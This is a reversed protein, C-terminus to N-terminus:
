ILSSLLQDFDHKGNGRIPRFGQGETTQRRKTTTTDETTTSTTTVPYCEVGDGEYGDNCLCEYSGETNLCNADPGCEAEGSLCEDIDLCESYPDGNFGPDCFCEAKDGNEM